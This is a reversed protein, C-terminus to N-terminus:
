IDAMEGGRDASLEVQELINVIGYANVGNCLPQTNKLISENFHCLEVELPTWTDKRSFSERKGDFTVFNVEGNFTTSLFGKDTVIELKRVKDSSLWSVHVNAIFNNFYFTAHCDDYNNGLHATASVYRPSGFLTDLISVDHTMLDWIVNCDKSFPGYNTRTSRVIKPSGFRALTLSDKIFRVEPTFTFTNDCMLKVGHSDALLYLTQADNSNLCIPKEVFCHKGNELCASAISFHSSPPTAVIVVDVHPDNIVDDLKVSHPIGDFGNDVLDCTRVLPYNLKNLAKQLNGSWFGNSGVLAYKIQKNM